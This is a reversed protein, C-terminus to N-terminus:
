INGTGTIGETRKWRGANKTSVLCEYVINEHVKLEVNKIVENDGSIEKELEDSLQAINDVSLSEPPIGFRTFYQMLARNIFIYSTHGFDLSLYDHFKYDRKLSTVEQGEYDLGVEKPSLIGSLVLRLEAQVGELDDGKMDGYVLRSRMSRKLEPSLTYIKGNIPIYDKNNFVFPRLVGEKNRKCSVVMNGEFNFRIYASDQKGSLQTEIEEELRQINRLSLRKREIGLANFYDAVAESTFTYETDKVTIPIDQREWYHSPITIKGNRHFTIRDRKTNSDRTAIRELRSMLSKQESPLPSYDGKINLLYFKGNVRVFVEGHKNIEGNAKKVNSHLLYTDEKNTFFLKENRQVVGRKTYVNPLKLKQCLREYRQVTSPKVGSDWDLINTHSNTGFEEQMQKLSKRSKGKGRSIMRSAYYTEVIGFRPLKVHEDIFDRNKKNRDIELSHFVALDEGSITIGENSITCYVGLEFLSLAVFQKTSNESIDIIYHLGKDSLKPSSKSVDFFGRLYKKRLEDGVVINELCVFERKLLQVLNESHATVTERNMSVPLGIYGSVIDRLQERVNKDHIRRSLRKEDRDGFGYRRSYVGLLYSFTKMREETEPVLSVMHPTLDSALKRRNRWQKVGEETFSFEEGILRPLKDM